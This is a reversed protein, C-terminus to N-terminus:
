WLFGGNLSVGHLGLTDGGTPGMQDSRWQQFEALGRLFCYRDATPNPRFRLEPGIALKAISMTDSPNVEMSAAEVDWTGALMTFRSIGTAGLEWRWLNVLPVYAEGLLSVGGGDFEVGNGSPPFNFELHAYAPAFGVTLEGYRSQFKRYFDVYLTTADIEIETTGVSALSVNLPSFYLPQNIAGPIYNLYDRFGFLSLSQGSIREVIEGEM